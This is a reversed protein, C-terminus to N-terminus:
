ESCAFGSCCPSMLVSGSRLVGSVKALFRPMRRPYPMLRFLRRLLLLLIQVYYNISIKNYVMVLFTGGPRLVRYIERVIAKTDPSHHIVGFSYVHDFTGSTFNLKEANM